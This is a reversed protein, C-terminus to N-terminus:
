SPPEKRQLQDRLFALEAASAQVDYYADHTRARPAHLGPFWQRVLDLDDKNFESGGYHDLWQGKIATVDLLRYHCRKIFRPLLRRAIFWDNHVSNGAILPRATIDYTPNGVFKTIYADLAKDVEAIPVADETRSAAVIEPINKQVWDSIPADKSVRVAFNIDEEPSALRELKENTAMVAVQLFEANDLDVSTFEADFWLYKM